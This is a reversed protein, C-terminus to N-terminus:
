LDVNGFREKPPNFYGFMLLPFAKRIRKLLVNMGLRQQGGPASVLGDAEMLKWYLLPDFNLNRWQIMGVCHHKLFDLFADFEPRTDTVGPMSLYNLSIFKKKRAALDISAVVDEFEYGNPRFYKNYYGPQVSNLSVRISDLGADFLRELVMPLGANTNMHITGEQTQNRIMRIAPEIVHAALLPDGECGQGFSVVARRVRRIHWLAIESIEEPSPTFRIREQTSSVGSAKEQLSLCGCCKANCAVSTPLPAEYRSLFLNKAAPCSYKLACNELHQRLRNGPMARRMQEAGHLIKNQPMLRLEQRPERDVLIAATRFQGALWGVAGYSFLPLPCGNEKEMYASVLSITYGPSNFSAVPFVPEGAKFPNERLVEFKDQRINYVVPMRDPLLMHEGGEPMPITQDLRIPVLHTGAMGVAAYGNLEFFEGKPSSVLAQVFRPRKKSTLLTLRKRPCIGKRQYVSCREGHANVIDLFKRYGRM